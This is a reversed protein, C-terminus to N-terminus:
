RNRGGNRKTLQQLKQGSGDRLWEITNGNTWTVKYPQNFYNFLIDIGKNPDKTMNGETDYEM